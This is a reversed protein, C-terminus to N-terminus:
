DTCDHRQREVYDALRDFQAAIDLLESKTQPDMVTAAIARLEAANDRYYKAQETKNV